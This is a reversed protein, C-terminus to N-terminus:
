WECEVYTAPFKKSDLERNLWDSLGCGPSAEEVTVVCFPGYEPQLMSLRYQIDTVGLDGWNVAGMDAKSDSARKLLAEVHDTLEQTNIGLKPFDNM